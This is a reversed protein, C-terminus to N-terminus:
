PSGIAQESSSSCGGRVVQARGRQGDSSKVTTKSVPHGSFYLGVGEVVFRLLESFDVDRHARAPFM